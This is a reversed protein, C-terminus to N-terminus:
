LDGLAGAEEGAGPITANEGVKPARHKRVKPAAPPAVTQDGFAELMGRLQGEVGHLAARAPFPVGEIRAAREVADASNAIADFLEGAPVTLRQNKSM